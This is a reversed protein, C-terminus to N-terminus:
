RAKKRDKPAPGREAQSLTPAPTPTPDPVLTLAPPPFLVPAPSFGERITEDVAGGEEIKPQFVALDLQGAINLLGFMAFIIDAKASAADSQANILATEGALVDILSRMGMAREKRALELFAAAIQVQSDLSGATARATGLQVWANRVEEEVRRRIDAVIRATSELDSESARLTNVATFGLNFPFNLEVRFQYEREFHLTGGANNKFKGEIIGELKPFFRRGLAEKRGQRAQAESLNALMVETNHELTLRLAEVLSGPLNREPVTVPAFQSIDGRPKYFVNRYRNDASSLTGEAQIRRSEAGLLQIKAQLVDTSLGVGTEVRTEELGTARRINTESQRAFGLVQHARILSVYATAGELILDQRAAVLAVQTEQLRLRAKEVTANTAGFDWLLQTLKVDYEQFPLSTDKAIAQDQREFGYNATQDLVPFWSGLAERAKNRSAEVAAEAAVIRDHEELVTELLAELTEAQVAAAILYAFLGM